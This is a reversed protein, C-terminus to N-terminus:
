ATLYHLVYPLSGHQPLSYGLPHNNILCPQGENANAIRRALPLYMSNCSYDDDKDTSTGFMRLGICGVLEQYHLALM